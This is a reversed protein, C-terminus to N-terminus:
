PALIAPSTCAEAGFARHRPLSIRPGGAGPHRSLNSDLGAIAPNAPGAARCSAKVGDEIRGIMGTRVRAVPPPSAAAAAVLSGLGAGLDMMLVQSSTVKFGLPGAAGAVLVGAAAGFGMGREPVFGTRGRITMEGLGGLLLGM